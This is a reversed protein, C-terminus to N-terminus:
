ENEHARSGQSFMFNFNKKLTYCNEAANADTEYSIQKNAWIHARLLTKM